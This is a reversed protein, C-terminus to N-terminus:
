PGTRSALDEGYLVKVEQEGGTERHVVPRGSGQRLPPAMDDPRIQGQM